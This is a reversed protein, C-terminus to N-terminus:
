NLLPSLAVMPAPVTTFKRLPALEPQFAFSLKTKCADEPLKVAVDFDFKSIELPEVIPIRESDPPCIIKDEDSVSVVM